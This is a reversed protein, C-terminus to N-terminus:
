APLPTNASRVMRKNAVFLDGGSVAIGSPGRLGSILAANMTDGFATYEGITGGSENTVFLNAGSLAIFSPESLGKILAANVTAGSTAYEGITNAGRNVVFLVSGAVAIGWPGTVDSILAANLTTGSITYAGVTNSSLDNNTVFITEAARAAGPSLSALLVAFLGSAIIKQQYIPKM